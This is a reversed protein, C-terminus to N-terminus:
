RRADAVKLYSELHAHFGGLDVKQRSQRQLARSSPAIALPNVLVLRGGPRLVTAAVEFLDAILEELDPIPVRRGMPPNTIVLSVTNTALGPITAYDRFDCCVFSAPTSEAPSAEFNVQAVAVAELSLDTGILRRVGGRLAREILELGSGCFPDWVLPDEGAGALRVMCAALPPHSAAPVDGKRYDFRPDPRLKPTLEVTCGGTPTPHLDIQWPASRSDNLLGPRLAHVRDALRRVASRQHGKAVFELRYRVPGETFAQVIQWTGSGAIIQALAEIDLKPTSGLVLSATSFCRLAYLDGLTFPALAELALLGRRSDLLHFRREQILRSEQLEERMLEELGNRGRLHIRVGSFQSLSTDFRVRSPNELRTLNAEVKQAARGLVSFAGSTQLTASGGIKELTQALSKKERDSSASGLMSLMRAEEVEGAGIKPLATMAYRRIKEEPDQLLTRLWQRAQEKQGPTGSESFVVGVARVVAVRDLRERPSARDFPPVETEWLAECSLLRLRQYHEKTPHRDKSKM